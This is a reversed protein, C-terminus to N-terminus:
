TVNTGQTIIGAALDRIEENTRQTNTDSWPVNVYMKDTDIEVPYNKGSETYGIKVLGAVTDTATTYQTNTFTVDSVGERALTLIQGAVSANTVNNAPLVYVAPVTVTDTSADGRILTITSGSITLANAASTLSQNSNKATKLGIATATDTAFNENDGLAAALENLTDLAAPSSDVLNSVATNVYTETAYGSDLSITAIQNPTSGTVALNLGTTFNLTTAATGESTGDEQVIVGATSNVISNADITVGSLILDTGDFLIHKDAKGFVMKGGTLDM